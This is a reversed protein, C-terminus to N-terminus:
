SFLFPLELSDMYHLQKRVTRIHTELVKSISKAYETNEKAIVTLTSIEPRNNLKLDQLADRFDSAVEAAKQDYNDNDSM